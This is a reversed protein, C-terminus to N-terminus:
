KLEGKLLKYAEERENCVKTDCESCWYGETEITDEEIMKPYDVDGECDKCPVTEWYQIVREKHLLYGMEKKCNPCIMEDGELM